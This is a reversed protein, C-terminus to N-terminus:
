YGPTPEDTVGNSAAFARMADAYGKSYGRAEAKIERLDAACDMVGHDDDRYLKGLQDAKIVQIQEDYTM